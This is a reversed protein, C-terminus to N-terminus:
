KSFQCSRDNSLHQSKTDMDAQSSGHRKQDWMSLYLSEKHSMISRNVKNLSNDFESLRVSSAGQAKAQQSHEAEPTLVPCHKSVSVDGNQSEQLLFSDGQSINADFRSRTNLALSNSNNPPVSSQLESEQLQSTDPQKLCLKQDADQCNRNSEQVAPAQREVTLYNFVAHKIILTM